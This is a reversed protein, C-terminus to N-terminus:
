KKNDDNPAQQQPSSGQQMGQTMPQQYYQPYMQYYLYNPPYYGNAMLYYMQQQFINPDQVNYMMNPDQGYFMQPNFGAMQNASDMKMQSGQSQATGQDKMMKQKDANNKKFSAQGVKMTKGNIQKGNMETIARQSESYDSFKVFGYGKSVKTSPDIIIKASIVSQYFQQFHNKLYEETISTDLECVYISFETANPNNNNKNQYSAWNLKFVKNQANPMPKGNLSKLVISAEEHTEFEIFGYGMM